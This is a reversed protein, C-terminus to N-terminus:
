CKHAPYIEHDSSNLMFFIPGQDRPDSIDRLAYLLSNQYYHGTELNPYRIAYNLRFSVIFSIIEIKFYKM